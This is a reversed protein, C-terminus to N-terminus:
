SPLSEAAANLQDYAAALALARKAHPIDSHYTCRLLNRALSLHWEWRYSEALNPQMVPTV